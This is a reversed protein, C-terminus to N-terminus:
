VEEGDMYYCEDRWVAIHVALIESPRIEKVYAGYMAFDSLQAEQLSGYTEEGEELVGESIAEVDDDYDVYIENLPKNFEVIIFRPESGDEMSSGMPFPIHQVLIAPFDKIDEPKMTGEFIRPDYGSAVGEIDGAKRGEFRYKELWQEWAVTAFMRM